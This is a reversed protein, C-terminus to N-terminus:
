LPLHFRRSNSNSRRIFFATAPTCLVQPEPLLSKRNNNNAHTHVRCERLLFGWSGKRPFNIKGLVRCRRTFKGANIFRRALLSLSCASKPIARSGRAADWVCCPVLKTLDFPIRVLSRLFAISDMFVVRNLRPAPLNSNAARFIFLSGTPINSGVHFGNQIFPM